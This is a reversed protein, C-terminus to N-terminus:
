RTTVVEEKIEDPYIMPLRWLSQLKKLVKEVINTMNLYYFSEISLMEKPENIFVCKKVTIYKMAAKM